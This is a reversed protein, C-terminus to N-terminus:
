NEKKGWTEIINVLKSDSLHGLWKDKNTWQDDLEFSGGFGEVKFLPFQKALLISNWKADNKASESGQIEFTWPSYGDVLYKMLFEKNWISPQCNVSYASNVLQYMDFRIDEHVMTKLLSLNYCPDKTIDGEVTMSLQLRGFNKNEEMISILFKIYDMNFDNHFFVDETSYIFHEPANDLLYARLDTSWEEVSGQKGMSIFNCNKTLKFDPEDYGLITLDHYDTFKNFLEIFVQLCRMHKNNTSVYYPIGLNM